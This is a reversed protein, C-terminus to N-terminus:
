VDAEEKAKEAEKEAIRALEYKALRIYQFVPM